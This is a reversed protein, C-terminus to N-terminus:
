LPDGIKLVRVFNTVGSQDLPFGGTVVAFDGNRVLEEDLALKILTHLSGLFSTEKSIIVPFVSHHFKLKRADRISNVGALIPIGIHHRSIRSATTGSTLPTLVIKAGIEDVLLPVTQSIATDITYDNKPLPEFDAHVEAERLIKVMTLVVHAPDKGIATEGSLMVADTGDYVANAVDTVEARTPVIETTMSELMQTATIVFKRKIRAKRILMKQITPVKEMPISIGLDGRAVMIGDTFELISDIQEVAEFREIKAILLPQISKNKIKSRIQVLDEPGKVFSIAIADVREETGLDLDDWDKPRMPGLNLRSDPFNMGARSRLIGGSIVECHLGSNKKELIKLHIIGDGFVIREGQKVESLWGEDEFRICKDDGDNSSSELYIKNGSALQISGVCLNNIRLKPGGLDQLIAVHVGLRKAISRVRRITNKNDDRTGHSFNIRFIDVGSEILSEIENESSSAPGLTAVIGTLRVDDLTLINEKM